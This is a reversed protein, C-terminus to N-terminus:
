YVWVERGLPLLGQAWLFNMATVSVRVCGHSAPLAPVQAAGHIAIGGNFYKPRWLRGLDSQRWGDPREFNFRFRGEYTVADGHVIRGSVPSRETFAKNSGTSANFVYRTQGGIVVFLIQRAKDVEVIDGEVTAAQAPLASSLASATFSDVVGTRPLGSYKQFAMVAQSLAGGYSGDVAGVFFRLEALRNQIAAVHTGSEGPKASALTDSSAVWYGNGDPAAAIAVSRRGADPLGAGFFPANGLGFVGGDTTALWLGDGAATVAAGVVRGTPKVGGATVAGLVPAAGFAYSAGDATIIWYGDGQPRMVVDVADSRVGRGVLSGFFPVDGFAFAGGDTAVMLYGRGTPSGVISVIPRVLPQGGMSGYFGASGYSFMGGDLSVIWYGDGTPVSVVDVVPSRLALSAPSGYFPAGGYAFLGGDSGALWYGGRPAAAMSVVPRAAGSPAGAAQASGFGRVGNEAAMAPPAVAVLGLSVGGSLGFGAAALM